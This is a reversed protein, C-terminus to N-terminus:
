LVCIETPFLQWWYARTYLTTGQGHCPFYCLILPFLSVKERDDGPALGDDGPALCWPGLGAAGERPLNNSVEGRHSLPFILPAPAPAWLQSRGQYPPLQSLVPDISVPPWRSSHSSGGSPSWPPSPVPPREEGRGLGATDHPLPLQQVEGCSRARHQHLAGWEQSCGRAEGLWRNGRAWEWGDAKEVCGLEQPLALTEAEGLTLLERPIAASGNIVRGQLGWSNNIHTGGEGKGTSQWARAADGSTGVNQCPLPKARTSPGVM